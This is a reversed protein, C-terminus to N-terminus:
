RDGRELRDTLWNRFPHEYRSHLGANSAGVNYGAEFIEEVTMHREVHAVAAAIEEDTYEDDRNSM